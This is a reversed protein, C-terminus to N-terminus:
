AVPLLTCEEGCVSYYQNNTYISGSATKFYSMRLLTKVNDPKTNSAVSYLTTNLDTYQYGYGYLSPYTCSTTQNTYTYQYQCASNYQYTSPSPSVSFNAKIGITAPFLNTSCDVYEQTEFDYFTCYTSQCKLTVSAIFYKTTENVDMSLPTSGTFNKVWLKDIDKPKYSSSSCYVGSYVVSKLTDNKFVRTQNNYSFSVYHGYKNNTYQTLQFYLDNNRQIKAYSQTDNPAYVTTKHQFNFYATGSTSTQYVVCSPDVSLVSQFLISLLFVTYM